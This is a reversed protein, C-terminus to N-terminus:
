QESNLVSFILNNENKLNFTYRVKQNEKSFDVKLLEAIKSVVKKNGITLNPKKGSEKASGAPTLTVGENDFVFYVQKTFSNVAVNLKTKQEKDLLESLEVSFTIGMTKNPSKWISFCHGKLRFKAMNEGSEFEIFEIPNITKLTEM